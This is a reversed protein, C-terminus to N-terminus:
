RREESRSNGLRRGGEQFRAFPKSSQFLRLTDQANQREGQVSSTQNGLMVSSARVSADGALSPVTISPTRERRDLKPSSSAPSSSSESIAASSSSSVGASSSSSSSSSAFM